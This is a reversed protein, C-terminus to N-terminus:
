VTAESEQADRHKYKWHVVTTFSIGAAEPTILGDGWLAENKHVQYPRHGRDFLDFAKEKWKDYLKAV